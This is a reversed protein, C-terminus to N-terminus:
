PVLAGLEAYVLGMLFSIGGGGLLADMNAVNARCIWSTSICRQSIFIGSGIIGGPVFASGGLLGIRPKM